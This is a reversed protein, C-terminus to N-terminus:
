LGPTPSSLSEPARILRRTGCVRELSGAGPVHRPIAKSALIHLLGHVDGSSVGEHACSGSRYDSARDCDRQGDLRVADLRRQYFHM